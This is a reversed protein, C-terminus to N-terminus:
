PFPMLSTLHSGLFVFVLSGGSLRRLENPSMLVSSPRLKLLLRVPVQKSTLHHGSCLLIKDGPEITHCAIDASVEEMSGISRTIVNRFHCPHPLSHDTTLRKLAKRKLIYAKSDGIHAICATTGRVLCTVLTSAMGQWQPVARSREHVLRNTEQICRGLAVAIEEEDPEPPLAQLTKKVFLPLSEAILSSAIEGAQEGGVGDAVIFLGLDNNIAFADENHDRVNGIDTLGASTIRLDNM